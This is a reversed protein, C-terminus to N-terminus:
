GGRKMAGYTGKMLDDIMGVRKRGRTKKGKMRGGIVDKLLGYHGIWKKKRNSITEIINIKEGVANLIKNHCWIIGSSL